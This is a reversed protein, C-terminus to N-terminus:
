RTVLESLLASLDAMWKTQVVFDHGQSRCSWPSFIGSAAFADKSRWFLPPLKPLIIRRRFRELGARRGEDHVNPM